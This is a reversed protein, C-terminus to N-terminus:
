AVEKRLDWAIEANRKDCFDYYREELGGEGYFFRNILLPKMVSFFRPSDDSLLLDVMAKHPKEDCLIEVIAEHLEYRGEKTQMMEVFLAHMLSEIEASGLHEKPYLMDFICELDNDFYQNRFCTEIYDPSVYNDNIALTDM